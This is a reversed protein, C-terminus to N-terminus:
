AFFPKKQKKLIQEEVMPFSSLECKEVIEILKPDEILKAAFEKGFSGLVELDLFPWIYYPVERINRIRLVAGFLSDFWCRMRRRLAEGGSGQEIEAGVFRMENEEVKPLKGTITAPTTRNDILVDYEVIPQMLFLENCTGMLAARAKSANMLDAFQLPVYPAFAFEGDGDGMFRFPYGGDGCIYGPLMSAVAFCFESVAKGNGAYVLIRQGAVLAKLVPLVAGRLQAIMFACDFEARPAPASLEAFVDELAGSLDEFCSRLRAALVARCREGLPARAIACLSKQVHDRIISEDRRALKASEVARYCALCYVCGKPQAPDPLTFMVSTEEDDHAKDPIAIFPLGQQWEAVHPLDPLPPYSRDIMNGVRHEFCLSVVHLMASDCSMEREFTQEAM